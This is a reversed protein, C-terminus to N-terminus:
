QTFLCDFFMSEDRYREKEPAFSVAVAHIQVIENGNIFYQDYKELGKRQQKKTNKIRAFRLVVSFSDDTEDINTGHFVGEYTEGTVVQVQVLQGILNLFLFNIRSRQISEKRPQKKPQQPKPSQPDSPTTPKLKKAAPQQQQNGSPKTKLSTTQQSGKAKGSTPNM